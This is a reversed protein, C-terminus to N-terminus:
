MRITPTSSNRGVPRKPPLGHGVRMAHQRLRPAAPGHEREAYRHQGRQRIEGCRVIDAQEGRRHDGRHEREADVKQDAGGPEHREPVAREVTERGVRDVQDRRFIRRQRHPLRKGDRHDDGANRRQEDARERQAGAAEKEQHHREREPLHDEEDEVVGLEAASRVARIECLGQDRRETKLEARLAKRARPARPRGVVHRETCSAAM